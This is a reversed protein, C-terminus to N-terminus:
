NLLVYLVLCLGFLQFVSGKVIDGATSKLWSTFSKFADPLDLYREAKELIPALEPQSELSRRWEGSTAKTEILQSGNVAQLLLQQAVFISPVVAILTILVISVIAALSAFMLKLELWIQLPSFLVALTLAWVLVSLFPMAMQYCIYVGFVTAVMMVLLRIHNTILWDDAIIVAKKDSEIEDM